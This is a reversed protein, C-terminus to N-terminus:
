LRSADERTLIGGREVTLRTKVLGPEPLKSFLLLVNRRTKM